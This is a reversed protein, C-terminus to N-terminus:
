EHEKEKKVAKYFNGRELQTTVMRYAWSKWFGEHYVKGNLYVFEQKDLEELSIIKDGKEYKRKGSM